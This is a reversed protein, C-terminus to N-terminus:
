PSLRIKLPRLFLWVVQGPLVSHLVSDVVIYVISIHVYQKLSASPKSRTKTIPSSPPFSSSSENGQGGDSQSDEVHDSEDSLAGNYDDPGTAPLDGNDEPRPSPSLEARLKGENPPEVRPSVARPPLGSARSGQVTM